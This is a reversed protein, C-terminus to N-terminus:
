RSQQWFAALLDSFFMWLSQVLPSQQDDGAIRLEFATKVKLLLDPHRDLVDVIAGSDKDDLGVGHLREMVEALESPRNLLIARKASAIRAQAQGRTSLSDLYTGAMMAIAAAAAGTSGALLVVRSNAASAAVGFVLGFISVTGDEMGFVVNGFSTFFSTRVAQLISAVSPVAM